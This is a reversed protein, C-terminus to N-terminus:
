IENETIKLSTILIDLPIINSQATDFLDFLKKADENSIQANLLNLINQFENFTIYGRRTLDKGFFEEDITKKKKILQKL